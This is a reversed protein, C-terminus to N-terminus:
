VAALGASLLESLFSSYPSSAGWGGALGALGGGWPTGPEPHVTGDACHVSM